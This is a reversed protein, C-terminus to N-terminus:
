KETSSSDDSVPPINEFDAVQNEKKPVALYMQDIYKNLQKLSNGTGDVLNIDMKSSAEGGKVDWHMTINKWFSASLDSAKKFATDKSSATFAMIMKQLDMFGGGNHGSFLKSYEPQNNGTLFADVEADSSGLAFWNDVLKNKLGSAASDAEIPMQSKIKNSFIDILKQFTPKDNVSVGFVFKMEPKEKNYPIVEGDNLTIQAPSEKVSYGTLAFALDGKNAKIFDEITFGLQGLYANAMGDVGLLKLFEKLGEPPYSMAFAALVNQQPLKALLSSSVEKGSYKKFLSALEKGYFQKSNFAIKGNEFNVTGTSINGELVASLKMMGMIGGLMGGYLNGSNVWYHMDAKDNILATFRDDSDLLDKGKLSFTNKALLKLSDLSYKEGPTVGPIATSSPMGKSMDSADAVLVFTKDNFYVVTNSQEAGKAFSLNGDKEIKFKGSDAQTIMTAFKNQDKMSGEFALYGNQGTRVMFFVLSGKPDIGSNEPDDLIKKLLTDTTKQRAEAFWATQKVEDWSLKSSLSSLDLHLVLGAEKPVLLGSKGAKNCATFILAMMLGLGLLYKNKM